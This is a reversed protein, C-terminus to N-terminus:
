SKSDPTPLETFGAEAMLENSRTEVAQELEAMFEDLPKGAKIRPMFEVVAKGPKRYIGRKPWFVGVNCAVPVCDQGLERYLVGSGVKYPAKIGPNIRTGQPYIVLQGPEAKGSQVDALMKKIAEARKGRNVPICGIRKAYQGLIPAYLLERKMIFKSKPLASYILIIDFFSQHKAAVLVEDTPPTGRVENKLGILWAALWKVFACWAHAAASAGRSSVLAWPLFAIAYVVMAVYILVIFLLSRLWQFAYRM